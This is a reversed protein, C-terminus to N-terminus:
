QLGTTLVIMAEEYHEAWVEEESKEPARRWDELRL